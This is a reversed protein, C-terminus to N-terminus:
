YTTYSTFHGSLILPPYEQYNKKDLQMEGSFLLAIGIVLTLDAINSGLIVGFGLSSTGEVAALVGISLEPLVTVIGAIVFSVVFESLRLYKALNFLRKIAEDASLIVIALGACILLIPVLVM